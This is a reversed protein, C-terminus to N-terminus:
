HLQHKKEYFAEKNLNLITNIFEERGPINRSWTYNQLEDDTLPKSAHVDLISNLLTVLNNESLHYVASRNNITPPEASGPLHRYRDSGGFLGVPKRAYLAEEITTSSYSILLDANTLDDLFNGSSQIECNNTFPLLKTLSDISCEINPRARIVLRTNKLHSVADILIRLGQIFENSTEYIWPRQGLYKVTGAHLITRIQDNHSVKEQVNKYGWMMPQFPLRSLNPMLELSTREASKSQVVVDTALFSTLLGQALEKHEYEASKGGYYSHSGHSILISKFDNRKTAEGVVAPELWRMNYSLYALPKTRAIFDTTSDLMSETYFIADGLLFYFTDLVNLIVPDRIIRLLRDLDKSPRNRSYSTSIINIINNKYIVVDLLQKIYRVFSERNSTKSLILIKADPDKIKINNILDLMGHALGTVWISRKGKLFLIFFWNVLNYFLHFYPKPLTLSRFIGEGESHREAFMMKHAFKLENCHCWSNEYKILWPGVDKILFWQYFATCALPHFMGRISEKAAGSLNKNKYLIPHLRKEISRVRALIKKHGYDNFYNLPDLLPLKTKGLLEAKADPTLPYIRGAEPQDEM